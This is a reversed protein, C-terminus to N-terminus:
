CTILAELSLLESLQCLHLDWGCAGARGATRSFARCLPHLCPSEGRPLLRSLEGREGVCSRLQHFPALVTTLHCHHHRPLGSVFHTATVHKRVAIVSKLLCAIRWNQNSTYIILYHPHQTIFGVLFVCILLVSKKSVTAQKLSFPM